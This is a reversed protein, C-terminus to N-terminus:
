FAGGEAKEFEKTSTDEKQEYGRCQLMPLRPYKPFAPDTASLQCLYFISGRASEIKKMFRCHACLGVRLRESGPSEQKRQNESSM